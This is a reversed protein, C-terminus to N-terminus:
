EHCANHGCLRCKNGKDSLNIELEKSFDFQLIQVGVFFTTGARASCNSSLDFTFAIVPHYISVTKKANSLTFSIICRQMNITLMKPRIYVHEDSSEDTYVPYINLTYVNNDWVQLHQTLNFYQVCDYCNYIHKDCKCDNSVNLHLPAIISHRTDNCYLSVKHIDDNMTKISTM